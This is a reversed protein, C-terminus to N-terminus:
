IREKQSASKEVTVFFFMHSILQAAMTSVIYGHKRFLYAMVIKTVRETVINGSKGVDKV